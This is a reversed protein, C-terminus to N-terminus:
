ILNSYNESLRRKIHRRVFNSIVTFGCIEFETTLNQRAQSSRWLRLYMVVLLAHWFLWGWLTSEASEAKLVPWADPVKQSTALPHFGNDLFYINTRTTLTHNGRPVLGICVSMSM